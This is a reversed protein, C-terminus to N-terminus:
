FSFGFSFHIAWDREAAFREGTPNYAFDVRMPGVPLRYRLGVGVAHGYRDSLEWSRRSANGVDYFVAGDLADILNQRLEVHASATTLGGLPDGGRGVPGLESEGFSRVSNEGGLFLREQIPLSRASDLVERTTFRGGLALVTGERLEKYTAYAARTELFDLSAGLAPTSLFLGIEGKGGRTPFLRDDRTDRALTAFPGASSEFGDEEIGRVREELDRAESLRLLYGGTLSLGRDFDRRVAARLDATREEFTPEERVTYGGDISVTDRRGLLHKDEVRGRAGFSKLSAALSLDLVRGTGLWNLDRHRVRGRVQEYSGWGGELEISRSPLEEVRVLLTVDAVGKGGPRAPVFLFKVSRFIGTAYLSSLSRDLASQHTVDGPQVEIRRKIFSARSREDGEVDIDRLRFLPGPAVNLVVDHRDGSAQSDDGASVEVEASHHAAEHLAKRARAACDSPVRAHYPSGPEPMADAIEKVLEPSLEGRVRVRGLVARPGEEVTVDVHAETGDKNWTVEYPGVNVETYGDLVYMREVDGVAADLDSVRFLRAGLGLLGGTRELFFPALEEHTFRTAGVFAVSGLTARVGPEVLLTAPSADDPADEFEVRARHHGAQRLAREVAYAADALDAKRRKEVYDALERRAATRMEFDTLEADGDVALVVENEAPITRVTSCASLVTAAALLAAFLLADVTSRIASM